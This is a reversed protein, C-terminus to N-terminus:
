LSIDLTGNDGFTVDNTFDTVSVSSLTMPHETDSSALLRGAAMLELIEATPSDYYLKKMKKKMLKRNRKKM